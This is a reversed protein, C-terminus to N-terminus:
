GAMKVLSIHHIKTNEEQIASCVTGCDNGKHVILPPFKEGKANVTMLVTTTERGPGFTVNLLNGLLLYSKQAQRTLVFDQKTLISYLSLNIKLGYKNIVAAVKDFHDYIVFPDSSQRARSSECM